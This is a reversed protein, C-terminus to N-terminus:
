KCQLKGDLVQLWKACAQRILASITLSKGYKAKGQRIATALDKDRYMRFSIDAANVQGETLLITVVKHSLDLTARPASPRDKERFSSTGATEQTVPATQLAEELGRAVKKETLPQEETVPASTDQHVEAEPVSATTTTRLPAATDSTRTDRAEPSSLEEEALAEQTEAVSGEQGNKKKRSRKKKKNANNAQASPEVQALIDEVTQQTSQKDVTTASVRNQNEPQQKSAKRLRTTASSEVATLISHLMAEQTIPPASDNCAAATAVVAREACWLGGQRLMVHLNNLDHKKRSGATFVTQSMRATDDGEDDGELPSLTGDEDASSKLGTRGLRRLRRRLVESVSLERPVLMHDRSLTDWVANRRRRKKFATLDCLSNACPSDFAFPYDCFGSSEEADESDTSWDCLDSPTETLSGRTKSEVTLIEDVVARRLTSQESGNESFSEVTKYASLASGSYKLKGLEQLPSNQNYTIRSCNVVSDTSLTVVTVYAPDGTECNYFNLPGFGRPLNTNSHSYPGLRQDDELNQSGRTHTTSCPSMSFMQSFALEKSAQIDYLIQFAGGRGVESKEATNELLKAAPYGPHHTDQTGESECIAAGGGCVTSFTWTESTGSYFLFIPPAESIARAASLFHKDLDSFTGTSQYDIAALMLDDIYEPALPPAAEFFKDGYINPQLRVYVPRFNLLQSVLFYTGRLAASTENTVVHLVAPLESMAIIRATEGKVSLPKTLPTNTIRGWVGNSRDGEQLKLLVNECSKPGFFAFCIIYGPLDLIRLLLHPRVTRGRENVFTVLDRVGNPSAAYDYTADVCGTPLVYEGSALGPIDSMITLLLPRWLHQAQVGEFMKLPMSSPKSANPSLITWQASAPNQCGWNPESSALVNMWKSAAATTALLTPELAVGLNWRGTNSDFYISATGFCDSDATEPTRTYVAKGDVKFRRRRYLGLVGNGGCGLAMHDPPEVIEPLIEVRFGKPAEETGDPGYLWWKSVESPNSTFVAQESYALANLEGTPDLDLAGRIEWHGSEEVFTVIRRGKVSWKEWVPRGTVDTEGNVTYSGLLDAWAIVATEEADLVVEIQEPISAMSTPLFKKTQHALFAASECKVSCCGYDRSISVDLPIAQQCVTCLTYGPPTIQVVLNLFNRNPGCIEGISKLKQPLPMLTGDAAEEFMMLHTKGNTLLNVQKLANELLAYTDDIYDKEGATVDNSQKLVTLTDRQMTLLRNLKKSAAMQFVSSFENLESGYPTMLTGLYLQGFHYTDWFRVFLLRCNPDPSCHEVLLPLHKCLVSDDKIAGEAHRVTEALSVTALQKATAFVNFIHPTMLSGPKRVGLLFVMPSRSKSQPVAHKLLKDNPSVPELKAGHHGVGLAFFAANDVGEKHLLTLLLCLDGFAMGVHCSLYLATPLSQWRAYLAERSTADQGLLTRANEGAGIAKFVLSLEFNSASLISADLWKRPGTSTNNALKNAVASAQGTLVRHIGKTDYGSFFQCEDLVFVDIARDCSEASQAFRHSSRFLTATIASRMLPEPSQQLYHLQQQTLNLSSMEEPERAKNAMMKQMECEQAIKSALIPPRADGEKFEIVCNGRTNSAISGDSDSSEGSSPAYRRGVGLELTPLTDNKDFWASWTQDPKASCEAGTVSRDGGGFTWRAYVGRIGTKAETCEDSSTASDDDEGSLLVCPESPDTSTETEFTEEAPWFPQLASPCVHAPPFSSETWLTQESDFTPLTLTWAYKGAIEQSAYNRPCDPESIDIGEQFNFATLAFNDLQATSLCVHNNPDTLVQDCLTCKNNEVRLISEDFFFPVVALARGRPQWYANFKTLYDVRGYILQLPLFYPNFEWHGPVHMLPALKAMESPGTWTDMENLVIQLSEFAASDEWLNVMRGAEVAGNWPFERTTDSATLVLESQVPPRTAFLDNATCATVNLERADASLRSMADVFQRTQPLPFLGPSDSVCIEWLGTIEDKVFAVLKGSNHSDNASPIVALVSVLTYIEPETRGYALYEPALFSHNPSTSPDCVFDIAFEVPSAAMHDVKTVTDISGDPLLYSELTQPSQAKLILDELTPQTWDLTYTLGYATSCDIVYNQGSSSTVVTSKALTLCNRLMDRPYSMMTEAEFFVCCDEMADILCSRLSKVIVLIDFAELAAISGSIEAVLRLIRYVWKLSLRRTPQRSQSALAQKVTAVLLVSLTPLRFNNNGMEMYEPVPLKHVPTLSSGDGVRESHLYNGSVGLAKLTKETIELSACTPEDNSRARKLSEMHLTRMVDKYRISRTFSLVMRLVGSRLTAQVIPEYKAFAQSPSGFVGLQHFPLLTALQPLIGRKVSFSREFGFRTVAGSPGPTRVETEACLLGLENQVKRHRKTRHIKHASFNDKHTCSSASATSFSLSKPSGDTEGFSRSSASKHTSLSSAEHPSSAASDTDSRPVDIAEFNRSGSNWAYLSAELRDMILDGESSSTQNQPSNEDSDERNGTGKRDGDFKAASDSNAAEGEFGDKQKEDTSSTWDEADDDRSDEAFPRKEALLHQRRIRREKYDGPTLIKCLQDSFRAVVSVCFTVKKQANLYPSNKATLEDLTIIRPLAVNSNDASFTKVGWVVTSESVENKRVNIVGCSYYVTPVCWLRSTPTSSRSLPPQLSLCASVRAVDGSSPKAGKKLKKTKGRSRTDAGAPAAAPKSVFFLAGLTLDGFPYGPSAFAKKPNLSAVDVEMKIHRVWRSNQDCLHDVFFDEREKNLLADVRLDDASMDVTQGSSPAATSPVTTKECETPYLRDWPIRKVSKHRRKRVLVSHEDPTLRVGQDKLQETLRQLRLRSGWCQQLALNRARELVTEVKVREEEVLKASCAKASHHRASKSRPEEDSSCGSHDNVTGVRPCRVLPMYWFRDSYPFGAFSGEEGEAVLGEDSSASTEGQVGSTESRGESAVEAPLVEAEAGCVKAASIEVPTMGCVSKDADDRASEPEGLQRESDSPDSLTLQSEADLPQADLTTQQVETMDAAAVETLKAAIAEITAMAEAQIAQTAVFKSASPQPTKLDAYPDTSYGENYMMAAHAARLFASQMPSPEALFPFEETLRRLLDVAAPDDPNYISDLRGELELKCLEVLSTSALDKGTGMDEYAPGRALAAIDGFPDYLGVSEYYEIEGDDGTKIGYESEFALEEELRRLRELRDSEREKTLSENRVKGGAEVSMKATARKGTESKMGQDLDQEGPVATDLTLDCQESIKSSPAVKAASPKATQIKVAPETKKGKQKLEQSTKRSQPPTKKSAQAKRPTQTSSPQTSCAQGSSPLSSSLQNKNNSNGSKLSGPIRPPYITENPYTSQFIDQLEQHKSLIEQLKVTAMALDGQFVPDSDVASEPASPNKARMREMASERMSVVAKRMDGVAKQMERVTRQMETSDRGM